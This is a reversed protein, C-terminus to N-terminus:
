KVEYPKDWKGINLHMYFNTHFYDIQADSDNFNFSACLRKVYHMAKWAEETLGAGNNYGAPKWMTEAYGDNFTYENLQTHQKDCPRETKENTAHNHDYECRIATFPGSMLHVNLSQGGAYREIRVSFTCKPFEIKLEKRVVKAIEAIGLGLKYNSGEWAGQTYHFRPAAETENIPNIKTTQTNEMKSGETLYTLLTHRM